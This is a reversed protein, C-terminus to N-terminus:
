VRVYRLFRYKIGNEQKTDSEEVLKFRDKGWEPLFTDCDFDGAVETLYLEALDPHKVAESFIQAGGIVFIRNIGPRLPRLDAGSVNRLAEDLSSFKLVGSPVEYDANRSIVVNLREKLPQNKAPLSEWTKRGMVVANQKDMPLQRKTIQAFYKLESPLHWPIQGAKGIGRKEDMAIIISFPM